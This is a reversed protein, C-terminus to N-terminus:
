HPTLGTQGSEARTVPVGSRELQRRRCPQGGLPIAGDRHCFGQRDWGSSGRRHGAGEGLGGEGGGDAGHLGALAGSGGILAEERGLRVRRIPDAVLLGGKDLGAVTEVLGRDGLGAPGVDLEAAARRPEPLDFIM